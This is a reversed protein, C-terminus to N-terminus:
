KEVWLLPLATILLALHKAMYGFTEGYITHAQYSDAREAIDPPIGPVDRAWTENSGLFLDYAKMSRVYESIEAENMRIRTHRFDDIWDIWFDGYTAHERELSILDQVHSDDLNKFDHGFIKM